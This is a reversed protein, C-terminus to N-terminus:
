PISDHRKLVELVLFVVSLLLRIEFISYILNVDFSVILKSLFEVLNVNDFAYQLKACDKDIYM